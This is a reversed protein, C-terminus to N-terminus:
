CLELCGDRKHGVSDIKLFIGLILPHVSGGFFCVLINITAKEKEYEGFIM